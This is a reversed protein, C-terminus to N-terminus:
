DGYYQKCADKIQQALKMPDFPKAIVEIAGLDKLAAVEDTQVKATMFIAPIKAIEPLERLAKLTSPGDMGPMMVDLLILDPVFAMISDLAEQGSSCIQVEFGGVNELAIRAVVQIDLEDEVYLIRKLTAM